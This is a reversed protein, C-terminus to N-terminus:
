TGRGTLRRRMSDLVDDMAYTTVAKVVGATRPIPNGNVDVGSFLSAVVHEAALGTLYSALADYAALIGTQAASALTNGTAQNEGLGIFFNRGRNSRGTFGTLFKVAATVNNPLGAVINGGEEAPTVPVEVGEQGAASMDVASSGNYSTDNSALPLLEAIVWSNLAVCLDNLDTSTWGGSKTFWMTNICQQGFSTFKLAAKAADAVPVFPM